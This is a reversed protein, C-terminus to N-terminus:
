QLKAVLIESGDDIAHEIAQVASKVDKNALADLLDEYNHRHAPNGDHSHESPYLYNFCPGIQVWLQEIMSLLVPMDALEYLAFRFARNRELSLAVKDAARATLYSDVLTRLKALRAKTMTACAREVALGEIRKRIITIEEYRRRTIVPVMFAQAPAAELGGAAVLRLLAERIPTVSTGLQEALAKTNVREGPKLQGSILADKLRSEAITTLNTREAKELALVISELQTRDTSAM